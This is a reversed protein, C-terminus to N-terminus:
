APFQHPQHGQLRGILECKEFPQVVGPDALGGAALGPFGGVAQLLDLVEYLLPQGLREAEVQHDDVPAVVPLHAQDLDGV